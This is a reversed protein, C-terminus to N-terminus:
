KRRFKVLVDFVSALAVIDEQNQRDASLQFNASFLATHLIGAFAVPTDTQLMTAGNARVFEIPVHRFSRLGYSILVTSSQLMQNLEKIHVTNYGFLYNRILSSFKEFEKALDSEQNEDENNDPRDLTNMIEKWLIEPICNYLFLM